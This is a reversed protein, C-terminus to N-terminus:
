RGAGANLFARAIFYLVIWVIAVPIAAISAKFLLAVLQGISVDVSVITVKGDFPAIEASASRVSDNPVSERPQPPVYAAASKVISYCNACHPFGKIRFEEKDAVENECRFCKVTKTATM